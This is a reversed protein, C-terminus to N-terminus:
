FSKKKGIVVAGGAVSLLSMGVYMAIGADFTKASDMGPKTTTTGGSSNAPTYKFAILTGDSLKEVTMGAPVLNVSSYVQAVTKCIGCTYETVKGDKDLKSAVWTHAITKLATDEVTYVFGDILVNKEPDDNSAKQALRYIYDKGDYLTVKAYSRSAADEPKAYQGCTTGWATFMAAAGYNYSIADVATLYYLNDKDTQQGVKLNADHAKVAFSVNDNYTTTMVYCVSDNDAKWYGINGTVGKSAAKAATYKFVVGDAGSAELKTNYTKDFLDLTKAENDSWTPIAAFAVAALSLAMAMSLVLAIIKKM